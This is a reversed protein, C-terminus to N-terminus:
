IVTALLLLEINEDIIKPLQSIPLPNVGKGVEITYGTMRFDQIFWDKYGAYSQSLNPKTLTYGSVKAFALGISYAKPPQLNKYDWFIVEGQTHYSLVLNYNNRKTLEMMAKTEPESGPYQGAYLAPSSGAIGFEKELKKFEQFGAPYNRNLDVGNINAKWKDFNYNNNNWKLLKDKNVKINEIGNIVLEVGDPNVMPIIDITSKNWLDILYYGKISGQLSYVKLVMELWAMLLPTTIWENAHHSANYSLKNNGKGIRIRYINRNGVSTGIIDVNLFPYRAKLGIINKELIDYNYAVDTRVVTTNLPIIISEGFKLMYPNINPNAILISQVTTKKDKAIQYLTDNPKIIYEIYGLIYPELENLTAENLSGNEPLKKSKQFVKISSNTQKGIIGDINGEYLDIDKLISQILSINSMSLDLM